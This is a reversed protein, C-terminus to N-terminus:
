LETPIENSIEEQIWVLHVHRKWSLNPKICKLYNKPSIRCICQMGFTNQMLKSWFEDEHTDISPDFPPIFLIIDSSSIVEDVTKKFHKFKEKYKVNSPRLRSCDFLRKTKLNSGSNDAVIEFATDFVISKVVEDNDSILFINRSNTQKLLEVLAKSGADNNHTKPLNGEAALKTLDKGYENLLSTDRREKVKAGVTDGLVQKILRTPARMLATLIHKATVADSDMDDALKGAIDFIQRSAVSRHVVGGSFPKNGRGMKARLERRIRKSELVRRSLEKCVADIEKVIEKIGAGPVLKEMEETSLEPFRLLAMLMHEPEIEGFRGAIAEYAAFQMVLEISLSIKM